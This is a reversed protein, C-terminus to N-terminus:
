ADNGSALCFVYSGSVSLVLGAYRVRMYDGKKHLVVTGGLAAILDATLAKVDRCIQPCNLSQEHQCVPCLRNFGDPVTTHIVDFRVVGQEDTKSSLTIPMFARTRLDFMM